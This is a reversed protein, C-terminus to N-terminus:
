VTKFRDSAAVMKAKDMLPIPQQLPSKGHLYREAKCPMRGKARRVADHVVSLQKM